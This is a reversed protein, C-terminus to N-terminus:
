AVAPVEQTGARPGAQTPSWRHCSAAWTLLPGELIAQPPTTPACAAHESFLSCRARRSRPPPPFSHTLDQLTFLLKFDSCSQRAKRSLTSLHPLAPYAQLATPGPRPSAPPPVSPGQSSPSTEEASLRAPCRAAPHAGANVCAPTPASSCKPFSSQGGWQIQAWGSVGSHWGPLGPSCLFVSPRQRGRRAAHEGHNPHRGCPSLNGRWGRSPPSPM